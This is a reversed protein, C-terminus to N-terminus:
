LICAKRCDNNGVRRLIIKRIGNWLVLALLSCCSIFFCDTCTYWLWHWTWYEAYIQSYKCVACVNRELMYVSAWMSVYYVVYFRASWELCWKCFLSFFATVWVNLNISAFHVWIFLMYCYFLNIQIKYLSLVSIQAILIVHGM